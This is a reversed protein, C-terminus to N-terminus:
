ENMEAMIAYASDSKLEKKFISLWSDVVM